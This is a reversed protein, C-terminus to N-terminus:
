GSDRLRYLALAAVEDGGSKSLCEQWVDRNFDTGSVSALEYRSVRVTPFEEFNGGLVGQEGFESIEQALTTTGPETKAPSPFAWSPEKSARSTNTPKKPSEGDRYTAAVRKSKSLYWYWIGAGVATGFFASPLDLISLQHLEPNTPELFIKSCLYVAATVAFPLYFYYRKVGAVAELRRTNILPLHYKFGFVIIGVSCVVLAYSFNSFAHSGAASASNILAASQVLAFIPSTSFAQVLLLLLWGNVGAEPLKDYSDHSAAKARIYIWPLYVAAFLVVAIGVVVFVALDFNKM